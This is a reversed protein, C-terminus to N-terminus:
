LIIEFDCESIEPAVTHEGQNIDQSKGHTHSGAKQNKKIHTKFQTIIFKMGLGVPNVPDNTINLCWRFGHM